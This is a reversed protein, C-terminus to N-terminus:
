YAHNKKQTFSNKKKLVPKKTYFQAINIYGNAIQRMKAVLLTALKRRATFNLSM